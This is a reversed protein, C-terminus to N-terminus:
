EFAEQLAAMGRAQGRAAARTQERWAECQQVIRVHWCLRGYRGAPCSCQWTRPDVQHGVGRTTRSEVLWRGNALRKMRPSYSPKQETM